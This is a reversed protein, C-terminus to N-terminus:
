VQPPKRTALYIAGGALAAAGALVLFWMGNTGVRGKKTAALLAQQPTM